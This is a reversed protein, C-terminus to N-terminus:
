LRRPRQVPRTDVTQSVPDATCRGPKKTKTDLFAQADESPLKGKIALRDLMCALANPNPRAGNAECFWGKYVLSSTEFRSVYAMCLKARGDVEMTFHTARIPGFRTELDYFTPPYSYRANSIERMDHLESMFNWVSAQMTQSPMVVVLKFDTDRDYIRGYSVEQLTGMGSKWARSAPKLRALDPVTIEVPVTTSPTLYSLFSAGRWLISAAVASVVIGVLMYVYRITTGAIALTEGIQSRNEGFM